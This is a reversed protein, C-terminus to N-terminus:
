CLCLHFSRYESFHTFIQFWFVFPPIFTFVHLFVLGHDSCNTAHLTFLTPSISLITAPTSRDPKYPRKRGASLEGATICRSLIM